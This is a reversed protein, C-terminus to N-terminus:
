YKASVVYTGWNGSSEAYQGVGYIRNADSADRGIGFYDGYRGSTHASEGAKVLVSNELDHAPAGNKRGTIRQCPYENSSCRSFIVYANCRLDTQIVPFMYYAGKQGYGNQQVVKATPVDVEYWQVACRAESDGSWSIKSNHCAWIRKVGGAHQYVANLIRNDNTAVRTSSGKQRGQPPVDYSRCGMSKKSLSPAGGSWHALPNTLTWLTLKNNSGFHNNILYAAGPGSGRYHCCPQVTFALSGDPNKLNWFDYWKVPAGAYVETKNLIRLKSYQFSSGKFQNMGIYLAQPDFGLMPYDMWNTTANSGDKSADLAYVWWSGMPDTTKSVAICCWSKQPSSQTAAVIIVYRKSYHDWIMRPDFVKVAASNPLVTSFFTNFQYRRQMSGTKTYIRFESNVGVLVHSPGAASVCDPPIWGTSPIAEFKSIVSPALAQPGSASPGIDEPLDDESSELAMMIDEDSDGVASSDSAASASRTMNDPHEAALLMEQYESKSVPYKNAKWSPKLVDSNILTFANEPGLAMPDFSSPALSAESFGGSFKMDHKDVTVKKTTKSGTTTKKKSTAM